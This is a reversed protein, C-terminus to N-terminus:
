LAYAEPMLNWRAGEPTDSSGRRRRASDSSDPGSKQFQREARAENRLKLLVEVFPEIPKRPDELGKQAGEGIQALLNRFQARAIGWHHVDSDGSWDVVLVQEFELLAQAARLGDGAQLAM